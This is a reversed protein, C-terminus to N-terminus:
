RIRDISINQTILNSENLINYQIIVVLTNEDEESRGIMVNVLKIRPEYTELTNEIDDKLTYAIQPTMNEFLKETVGSNLSPQFLRDYKNTMVLNRVSSKIAETNNKVSVDRTVPNRFFSFDLDRYKVNAKTTKEQYAM